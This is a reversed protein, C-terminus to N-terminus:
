KRAVSSGSSAAAQPRRISLGQWDKVAAYLAPIFVLTILTSSTLGGIVVRALPAQVESGEGVGLALPVMALITTLTTMLIPRLRTVAGSVVADYIPIQEERVKLNIYDVLVIANNVVIGTLLIIGIFSNVNFTSGTIWLSAVIGVVALPLSFMILLPDRLSEFQAAMVMYVLLLALWLGWRLEEFSEQQEHYDGGVDISFEPPLALGRLRQQLDAIVSGMDRGTVEGSISFIREQNLRTIQTPGKREELNIFTKIMVPRGSPTPVTIDLLSNILLRDKENLRVLVDFEDGRDRYLTARTGILATKITQAITAVPVGLAAAKERDIHVGLEPQGGQRNVRVGSIGEVQEMHRKIQEATEQGAILDHGRLKVELNDDGTLGLRRFVFLGSRARIRAVIGPIANISRRLSRAIEDDSRQRTNKTGLWIHM